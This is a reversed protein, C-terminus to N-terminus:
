LGERRGGNLPLPSSIAKETVKSRVPQGMPNNLNSIVQIFQPTQPRSSRHPWFVFPPGLQLGGFGAAARGEWGGPPVLVEPSNRRCSTRLGESVCPRRASDVWPQGSPAVEPKATAPASLPPVVISVAIEELNLSVWTDPNDRPYKGELDPFATTVTSVLARSPIPSANRGTGGARM